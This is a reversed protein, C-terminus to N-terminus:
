DRGPGFLVDLWSELPSREEIEAGVRRVESGPADDPLPPAAPDLAFTRERTTGLQYARAQQLVWREETVLALEAKLAETKAAAEATLAQEAALREGARSAEAAQGAFGVVIWAAAVVLVVWAIRRRTIGAVGLGALSPAAPDAAPAKSSEAADADDQVPTARAADDPAEASPRQPDPRRPM